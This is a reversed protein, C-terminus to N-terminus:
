KSLQQPKQALQRTVVTLVNFEVGTARLLEVGRMARAYTGKGTVDIRFRDTAVQPGDLSVGVLFGHEAFFAAWEDDLLTANTQLSWYPTVGPYRAMEEAFARFWPLGAVTPEGGQFSIHADGSFGVAEALRRALLKATEAEMVDHRAVKRSAAVDAYFCYRCRLNCASSAPKVMVSVTGMHDRRGIREVLISGIASVPVSKMIGALLGLM